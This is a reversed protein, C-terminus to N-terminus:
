VYKRQHFAIYLKPRIPMLEEASPCCFEGIQTRNQCKYEYQEIVGRIPYMSPCM